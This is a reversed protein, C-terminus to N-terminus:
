PDSAQRARARGPALPSRFRSMAYEETPWMPKTSRPMALMVGVPTLPASKALMAWPSM